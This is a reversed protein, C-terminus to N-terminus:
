GSLYIEEPITHYALFRHIFLFFDASSQMSCPILFIPLVPDSSGRSRSQSILQPAPFIAVPPEGKAGERIGGTL